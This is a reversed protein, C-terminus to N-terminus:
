QEGTGQYPPTGPKRLKIETAVALSDELNLVAHGWQEPVYMIDGPHQVCEFVPETSALQPYDEAVWRSVPKRSWFNHSPPVLFWRKRGVVAVNFAAVHMHMPAGSGAPGLMFQTAGQICQQGHSKTCTAPEFKDFMPPWALDTHLGTTSLITTNFVYMPPRMAAAIGGVGATSGTEKSAQGRANEPNVGGSGARGRARRQSQGWRGLIPRNARCAEKEHCPRAKADRQQDPQELERPAPAPGGGCGLPPGPPSIIWSTGDTSAPLSIPLPPEPMRSSRSLLRACILIRVSQSGPVSMRLTITEPPGSGTRIGAASGLMRVRTHRLIAGRAGAAPQGGGSGQPPENGDHLPRLRADVLGLACRSAVGACCGHHALHQTQRGAAPWLAARLAAMGAGSVGGDLGGRRGRM